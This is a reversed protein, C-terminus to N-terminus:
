EKNNQVPVFAHLLLSATLCIIPDFNVKYLSDHPISLTLAPFLFLLSIVTFGFFLWKITKSGNAKYIGLMVTGAIAHLSYLVIAANNTTEGFVANQRNGILVILITSIVVVIGAIFTLKPNVLSFVIILLASAPIFIIQVTNFSLNFVSDLFLILSSAALAIVGLYCANFAPKAQETNCHCETKEKRLTHLIAILIIAIVASFNYELLINPRPFLATDSLKLIHVLSLNSHGFYITITHYYYTYFQVPGATFILTAVFFSFALWKLARSKKRKFCNVTFIATAATMCPLWLATHVALLPNSQSSKFTSVFAKLGIFSVKGNIHMEFLFSALFTFIGFLILLPPIFALRRNNVAIISIIAASLTLVGLISNGFIDTYFSNAAVFAALMVIAASIIKNAGSCKIAPPNEQPQEIHSQATTLVENDM